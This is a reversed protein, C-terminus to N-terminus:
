VGWSLRARRQRTGTRGTPQSHLTPTEVSPLVSPVCGSWSLRVSARRAPSCDHVESIGPADYFARQEAEADTSLALV